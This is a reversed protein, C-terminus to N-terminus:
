AHGYPEQRRLAEAAAGVAAQVNDDMAQRVVKESVPGTLEWSRIRGHKTRVLAFVQTHPCYRGNVPLDPHALVDDLLALLCDSCPAPLPAHDTM